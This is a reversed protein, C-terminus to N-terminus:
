NWSMRLGAVFGTGSLDKPSLLETTEVGLSAAIMSFGLARAVPRFNYNIGASAEGMWRLESLGDDFQSSPSQLWAPLAALGAYPRLNGILVDEHALWELGLRAQYVSLDQQVTYGANAFGLFGTRSLSIFSLGLKPSLFGFRTDWEGIGVNFSPRSSKTKVFTTTDSLRSPTVIGQPEWTSTNLEFYTPATARSPEPQPITIGSRPVVMLIDSAPPNATETNKKLSKKTAALVSGAFLFQVAVISVLTLLLAKVHKSKVSKM